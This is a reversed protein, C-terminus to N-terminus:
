DEECWGTEWVIGCKRCRHVLENKTKKVPERSTKGGCKPCRHAWSLRGWAYFVYAIAAFVALLSLLVIVAPAGEVKMGETKGGLAWFTSTFLAAVSVLFGYTAVVMRRRSKQDLHRKRGM